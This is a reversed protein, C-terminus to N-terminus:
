KYWRTRKAQDTRIANLLSTLMNVICVIWFWTAHHIISYTALSGLLIGHMIFFVNSHKM